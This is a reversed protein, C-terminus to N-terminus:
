EELFAELEQNMLEAQEIIGAHRDVKEQFKRSQTLTNELTKQLKIRRLDVDNNNLKAHKAKLKKLRKSVTHYAYMQNQNPLLADYEQYATKLAQLDSINLLKSAKELEFIKDTYAKINDQKEEISADDMEM